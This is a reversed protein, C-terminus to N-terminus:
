SRRELLGICYPADSESPMNEQPNGKIQFVVATDGVDLSVQSRRVPVNLNLLDRIIDAAWKNWIVSVFGKSLIGKAEEPTISRYNYEGFSPILPTGILYITLRMVVVFEARDRIMKICFAM